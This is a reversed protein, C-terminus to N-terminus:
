VGLKPFGNIDRFIISSYCLQRTPIAILLFESGTCFNNGLPHSRLVTGGLIKGFQKLEGSRTLSSLENNSSCTLLSLLLLRLYSTVRYITYLLVLLSGCNACWHITWTLNLHLPIDISNGTYQSDVDRESIRM